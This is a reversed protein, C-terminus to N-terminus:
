FSAKDTFVAPSSNLTGAAGLQEYIFNGAIVSIYVVLTDRLVVKLPRNEKTVFRMELFRFLLYVGSVVLAEIFTKQNM